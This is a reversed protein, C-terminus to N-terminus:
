SEEPEQPATPGSGATDLANLINLVDIAGGNDYAKAGDEAAKRIRRLAEELVGVREVEDNLAHLNTEAVGRWEDRERETEQRHAIEGELAAKLSEIDM